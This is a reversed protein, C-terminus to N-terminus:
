RFTWNGYNTDINYELLNPCTYVIAIKDGFKHNSHVKLIYNIVTSADSSNIKGTFAYMNLGVILGMRAMAAEADNRESMAMNLAKALDAKEDGEIIKIARKAKEVDVPDECNGRNLTIKIIQLNDQYVDCSITNEASVKVCKLSQDEAHLNGCPYFLYCTILAIKSYFYTLRTPAIM